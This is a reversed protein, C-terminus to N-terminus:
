VGTDKGEGWVEMNDMEEGSQGFIGVVAETHEIDLECDEDGNKPSSSQLTAIGKSPLGRKGSM